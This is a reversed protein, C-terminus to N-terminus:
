LITVTSLSHGDSILVRLEEELQSETPNEPKTEEKGEILLTIEGKPQRILFERKADGLSGRWFQLLLAGRMLPNIM